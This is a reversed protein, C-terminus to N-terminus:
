KLHRPVAARLHRRRRSKLREPNSKLHYLDVDTAKKKSAKFMDLDKSNGICELSEPNM